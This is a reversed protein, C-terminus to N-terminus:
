KLTRIERRTKAHWGELQYPQFNFAQGMQGVTLISSTYARQYGLGLVMFIVKGGTGVKLVFQLEGGKHAVTKFVNDYNYRVNPYAEKIQEWIRQRASADAKAKAQRQAEAQKSNHRTANAKLGKAVMSYNM